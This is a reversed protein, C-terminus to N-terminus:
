LLTGVGVFLNPLQQFLNGGSGSPTNIARDVFKTSAILILHNRCDTLLSGSAIVCPKGMPDDRTAKAVIEGSSNPITSVERFLIKRVPIVTSGRRSHEGVGADIRRARAGTWGIAGLSVRSRAVRRSREGARAATRVVLAAKTKTLPASWEHPIREIQQPREIRRHSFCSDDPEAEMVEPMRKRGPENLGPDIDIRNLLQPSPFRDGYHQAIRM